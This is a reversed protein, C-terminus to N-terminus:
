KILKIAHECLKEKIEKTNIEKHSIGKKKLELSYEEALSLEQDITELKNEKLAKLAADRYSIFLELVREDPLNGLKDSAHSM